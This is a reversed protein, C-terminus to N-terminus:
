GWAVPFASTGPNRSGSPLRTLMSCDMGRFQCAGFFFTFFFIAFFFAAFVFAPLFRFAPLFFAPFRDYFSFPSTSFTDQFNAPTGLRDMFISLSM